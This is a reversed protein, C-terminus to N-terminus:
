QLLAQSVTAPLHISGDASTLKYSPLPATKVIAEIRYKNAQYLPINSKTFHDRAIDKLRVLQGIKFKPKIASEEQATDRSMLLDIIKEQAENSFANDPAIHTVSNPTQNYVKVAAM